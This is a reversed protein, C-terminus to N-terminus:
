NQFATFDATLKVVSLEIIKIRDKHENLGLGFGFSFGFGFGFGFESQEICFHVQLKGIHYVTLRTRRKEVIRSM